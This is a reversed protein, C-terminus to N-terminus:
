DQDPGHDSDSSELQGRPNLEIAQNRRRNWARTRRVFRTAAVTLGSVATIFQMVIALEPLVQWPMEALIHIMIRMAQEERNIASSRDITPDIADARM